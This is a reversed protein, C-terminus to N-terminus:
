IQTKAVTYSVIIPINLAFLVLFMLLIVLTTSRVGDYIFVYALMASIITEVIVIWKAVKFFVHGILNLRSVLLISNVLFIAASVVLLTIAGLLPPKEPMYSTMYIGGIIVFSLSIVSLLDCPPLKTKETM